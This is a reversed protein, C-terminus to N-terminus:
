IAYRVKSKNKVTFIRYLNVILMAFGSFIVLGFFISAFAQLVTKATAADVGLSALQQPNQM